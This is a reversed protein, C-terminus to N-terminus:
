VFIWFACMFQIRAADLFPYGRRSVWMHVRKKEKWVIQTWVDDCCERIDWVASIHPVATTYTKHDKREFHVNTKQKNSEANHLDSRIPDSRCVYISYTKESTQKRHNHQTYRCISIIKSRWRKERERPGTLNEGMENTTREDTQTVVIWRM